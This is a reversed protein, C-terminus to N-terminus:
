RQLDFFVLDGAKVSGSIERTIKASATKDTVSTVQAMAIKPLRQLKGRIHPGRCRVLFFRLNEYFGKDAGGDLIITDGSIEAVRTEPMLLDINKSIDNVAEIMADPGSNGCGRGIAAVRATDTEYIRVLFVYKGKNETAADEDSEGADYSGADNATLLKKSGSHTNFMLIGNAIYKPLIVKGKTVAQDPAAYSTTGFDIERILGLINEREIIEFWGTRQLLDVMQLRVAKNYGQEDRRGDVREQEEIVTTEEEDSVVAKTGGERHGFQADTVTNDRVRAVAVQFKLNPAYETGEGAIRQKTSYRPAPMQSEAFVYLTSFLVFLGVLCTAAKSVKFKMFFRM